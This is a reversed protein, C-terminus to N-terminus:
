NCNPPFVDIYKARVNIPKLGPKDPDPQVDLHLIKDSLSKSIYCFGNNPDWRAGFKTCLDQQVKKWDKGYGPPLNALEQLRYTYTCTKPAQPVAAVSSICAAAALLGTLLHVPPM